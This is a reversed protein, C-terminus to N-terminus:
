GGADSGFHGAFDAWIAVVKATLPALDATCTWAREYPAGLRTAAIPSGNSVNCWAHAGDSVDVAKVKV